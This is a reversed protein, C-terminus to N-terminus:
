HINVFFSDFVDNEACVESFGDDSRLGERGGKWEERRVTEEVSRAANRSVLNEVEVVLVAVPSREGVEVEDLESVKDLVFFLALAKGQLVEADDGGQLYRYRAEKFVGAFEQGAGELVFCFQLLDGPVEADVQLWLLGSGGCRM